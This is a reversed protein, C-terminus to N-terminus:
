PMVTTIALVYKSANGAQWQTGTAQIELAVFDGESLSNSHTNQFCHASSVHSVLGQWLQRLPHFVILILSSKHEVVLVGDYLIGAHQSFSGDPRIGDARVASQVVVETHARNYAQDVINEDGALLGASIGISAMDLANAGTLQGVGGIVTYNFTAFSRATMRQCNSLQSPTLAGDAAPSELLLVCAQGVQAPVGLM